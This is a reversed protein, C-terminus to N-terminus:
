HRITLSTLSSSAPTSSQSSRFGLHFLTTQPRQKISSLLRSSPHRACRQRSRAPGGGRHDRRTRVCRTGVRISRVRAERDSERVRGGDLGPPVGLQHGQQRRRPLGGDGTRGAHIGDHPPQTAIHHRSSKTALRPADTPPKFELASSGLHDAATSLSRLRPPNNPRAVSANRRRKIFRVNESM